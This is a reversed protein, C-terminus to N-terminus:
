HGLWFGRVASTPRGGQPTFAGAAQIWLRRSHLLLRKGRASLVFRLRLHGARTTTVRLTAIAVPRAGAHPIHVSWSVTLQGASPAAFPLTFSAVHAPARHPPPSALVPGLAHRITGPSPGPRGHPAPTPAPPPTPTLAPAVPGVAASVVSASTGGANAATESVKILAGQDAVALTYILQTAGPIATCASASCRWWQYAFGSPDATWQAGNALLASAVRPTGFIAPAHTAVPATPLVSASPASTAALGSGSANAASEQVELTAGIDAASVTYTQAGAGAIPACGAGAPCRLWRYTYSSPSGLWTGHTESLTLGVTPAGALSPASIATPAGPATVGALKWIGRGHTAAYLNGAADLTLGVVQVNPLASGVASWSTSAGSLSAAGTSFVGVDTAVVLDGADFLVSNSAAAIPLNGTQDTFSASPAPGIAVAATEVVPAVAFSHTNSSSFSLAIQGPDSPSVGIHTIWESVAPSIATFTPTASTANTSVELTGDDFGVYLVAPDSPASAIASVGTGVRTLQTWAPVGATPDSTVWLDAGGYYVTPSDPAAPDPVLIMPPVFNTASDPEGPPTIESSAGSWGTTTLSLQGNTEVIQENVDFPDIASYGGDGSVEAAWSRSGSYLVSGTSQLGALITAGTASVGIDQYAQSIDLGGNLNAVGNAGASPAYGYLGGDSGLLVSSGAPNFAAAHFDPAMVNSNPGFFSQGNINSWSTGGDSSEIAAIGGAIVESPDAPSVALTNDYGAQDASGTGFAYAQNTYAPLSTVLNWTTGADTSKFMSLQGQNGPDSAGNLAVAAYITQDANPHSSSPTGIALATVGFTAAAPLGGSLTQFDVGGDLSVQIGIGPTALYVTAPHAPDLVVASASDTVDGTGTTPQSWSAGGDASEFLGSSTSAYLRQPNSPDVALGTFDVGTFMGAPNSVTWSAGGDSSKLVGGGYFCDGCSEGEGTGAYVVQANTPDLALAGIALGSSVQDTHTVWHSGGDTSSWVGGGASGVFIEGNPAVVIADVRGSATGGYFSGRIPAPGLATWVGTVALPSVRSAGPAAGARLQAARQRARAGRAAATRRDGFGARQAALYRAAALPDPAHLRPDRPSVLPAAAPASHPATLPAAAAPAIAPAALLTSLMALASMRAM